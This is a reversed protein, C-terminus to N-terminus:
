SLSVRDKNNLTIENFGCVAKMGNDMFRRGMLLSHASYSQKNMGNDMFRRGM